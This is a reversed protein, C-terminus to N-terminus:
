MVWEGIVDECFKMKGGFSFICRALFLLLMSTFCSACANNNIAEIGWHFSTNAFNDACSSQLAVVAVATRYPHLFFMM